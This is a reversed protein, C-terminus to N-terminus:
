LNNLTQNFEEILSQIKTDPRAAKLVDIKQVNIKFNNNLNLIDIDFLAEGDAFANIHFPKETTDIVGNQLHASLILDFTNFLSNNQNYYDETGHYVLINFNNGNLIEKVHSFQEMNFKINQNSDTIGPQLFGLFSIQKGSDLPYDKQIITTLGMIEANTLLIGKTSLAFKNFFGAGEVYEQDGPLIIDPKIIAYAQLISKNLLPFSYTNFIDGGDIVVLNNNLKRKEDVIAAINDLGGLPPESCHCAELNGNINGMYLIEFVPQFKEQKNCAMVSLSLLLFFKFKLKVM